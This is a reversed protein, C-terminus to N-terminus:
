LTLGFYMCIFLRFFFMRSRLSGASFPCPQGSAIAQSHLLILHYHKLLHVSFVTTSQVYSLPSLVLSSSPRNTLRRQVYQSSLELQKSFNNKIFTVCYPIPLTLFPISIEQDYIVLPFIPPYKMNHKQFRGVQLKGENNRKLETGQFKLFSSRQCHYDRYLLMINQNSEKWRRM